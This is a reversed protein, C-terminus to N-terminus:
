SMANAFINILSFPIRTKSKELQEAFGRYRFDTFFYNRKGVLLFGYTGTFGILYRVNTLHTILQM